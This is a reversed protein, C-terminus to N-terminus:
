HAVLDRLDAGVGPALGTRLDRPEQLRQIGVAVGGGADVADKGGAVPHALDQFLQGPLHAYGTLDFSVDVVEHAHHVALHILDDAM